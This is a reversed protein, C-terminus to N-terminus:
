SSGGSGGQGTPDDQSQGAGQGGTLQAILALRQEDTLGALMKDMSSGAKKAARRGTIADAKEERKKVAPREVHRNHRIRRLREILEEDTQEALPKQLDSLKM